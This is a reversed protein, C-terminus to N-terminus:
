NNQNLNVLRQSVSTILSATGCLESAAGSKCSSNVGALNYLDSPGYIEGLSVYYPTSSNSITFDTLASNGGILDKGDPTPQDQTLDVPDCPDTERLLSDRWFIHKYTGGEQVGIIYTYRTIGICYTHPPSSSDDTHYGHALKLNETVDQMTSRVSDQITAESNGKFYLHGISVIIATTMTIISAVVVMAILLEIITFGNNNKRSNM